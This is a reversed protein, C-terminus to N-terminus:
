QGGGQYLASIVSGDRASVFLHQGLSAEGLALGGRRIIVPGASVQVVVATGRHIPGGGAIAVPQMAAVPRRVVVVGGQREAPLWAALAPLRARAQAALFARPITATAADRRVRALELRAAADRLSPPLAAVDAVDGLRIVEARTRVEDALMLGAALVLVLAM